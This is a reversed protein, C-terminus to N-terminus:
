RPELKFITKGPDEMNKPNGIPYFKYGKLSDDGELLEKIKNKQDSDFGFLILVCDHDACKPPNLKVGFLESYIEFCNSFESLIVKENDKIQKNYRALQGTVKPKSNPKSWVESNSFDKAECFLLRGEENDYFLIDIRSKDDDGSFAVETDVVYYRSNMDKNETAAFSFKRLIADVGMDEVGAYLKCRGKIKEYGSVFNDIREMKLLAEQDVYNERDGDKPVFAYKTHTLFGNAGYKFLNGKYHYFSIENKRIAPFVEGRKIDPLLRDRFLSENRLKQTLDFYRKFESM